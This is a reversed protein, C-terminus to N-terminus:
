DNHRSMENLRFHFPVISQFGKELLSGTHKLDLEHLSGRWGQTVLDTLLRFSTALKGGVREKTGGLREKTEGVMMSAIRTYTLYEQLRCLIDHLYIFVYFLM